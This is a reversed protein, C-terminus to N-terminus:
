IRKQKYEVKEKQGVSKLVRVELQKIPWNLHTIITLLQENNGWNGQSRLSATCINIKEWAEPVWDGTSFNDLSFCPECNQGKMSYKNVCIHWAWKLIDTSSVGRQFQGQPLPPSLCGYKYQIVKPRLQNPQSHVGSKPCGILLQAPTILDDDSVSSDLSRSELPSKFQFTILRREPHM